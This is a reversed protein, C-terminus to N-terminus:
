LCFRTIAKKYFEIASYLEQIEVHESPTHINGERRGAGFCLCEIGVRSFLSAENTSPQSTPEGGLGLGKLDELCGRIFDSNMETVFPEKYDTVRFEAGTKECIEKLRSMWKQYIDFSVSPNMRCNGSIFVHTDMTRIIGINLTPIRPSFGEEEFQLFENELDCIAQYITTLKKAMPEKHGAVPDIELYASAPVTNFNVGGEIEMIALNEPMLLMYEFVKKIASDGLQPTSSHASRGNFIKSHTTSSERLNHDTRFQNEDAEFPVRIEVAAMGKGARILQLNSPEGILAKKAKIKNKRILKLAGVMGQEECFTGALVPTVRWSKQNSFSALAELKCLFDLKADAAGLGFIKGEIIHADFPNHGTKSWLGFPGPDPTDLHTQLLFEEKNEDGSSKPRLLVNMQPLGGWVEDMKEVALGKSQGLEAAFQAVAWNGQSPTSDL